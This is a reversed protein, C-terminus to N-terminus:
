IEMDAAGPLTPRDLGVPAGGQPDVGWNHLSVGKSKM